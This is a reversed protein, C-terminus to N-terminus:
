SWNMRCCISEVSLQLLERGRAVDGGAVQLQSSPWCPLCSCAVAAFVPAQCTALLLMGLAPWGMFSLIHFMRVVDHNCYHEATSLARSRQEQLEDHSILM